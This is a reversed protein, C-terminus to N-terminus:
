TNTSTDTRDKHITDNGPGGDVLLDALGDAANLTDNGDEGKLNDLGPGGTLVDNGIGGLLTDNGAQGDLNDDGAGGLLLDNNSGGILTDNGNGGNLTVPISLNSADIRDAGDNGNVTIKNVNNFPSGTITKGNGIVSLGKSGLTFSITDLTASGNITLIGGSLSATIGTGDGPPAAPTINGTLAFNFPNENSDNDGFSTQGSKHGSAASTDLAIVLNATQGPALLSPLASLIVFGAPVTMKGLSLNANGDNAVRFTRAAKSAKTGQAINGFDFSSLGDVVGRLQGKQMANITIEPIPGTGVSVIAGTIRFTFTPAAPDDSPISVLGTHTGPVASTDMQIVFSEGEGPALSNKLPDILIFGDPLTISGTNLPATGTNFVRFTRTPGKAAVERNGFEISSNGNDIPGAPRALTTTMVPATPIVAQVEGSIAFTFPNQNPDSTAFSVNGSFAGATTTDLQITFSDSDGPNLQGTLPEALIFGAPLNVTDLVLVDTGDNKVTFTLGPGTDGQNVAGFDIPTTQGNTIPNAGQTVTAKAVPVGAEISNFTDSIDFSSVTDFGDGGDIIDPQTNDSFFTDNDNGGSLFDSAAGGVLTDNGDGGSLTAPIPIAAISISDDGSLGSIQISSIPTAALDFAGDSVANLSVTLVNNSISLSIDDNGATGDVTLLGSADVASTLLRRSELPDISFVTCSLAESSRASSQRRRVTM